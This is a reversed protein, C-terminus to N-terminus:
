KLALRFFDDLKNVYEVPYTRYAESHKVGPFEWTQSMPNTSVEWLAQIEASLVLVDNEEHLFLIPCSISPVLEVPNLPKFGYFLDATFVLGDYFIDLLWSPIGKEIAQRTVMGRLTAFCGDLMVAGVNEESAFLSVSAAGSCYGIVGINKATYGLTKVYDVAGGIDKDGNMLSRAKGSSEGRGRLDFLMVNYGRAVLDRTLGLTDVMPDVRNQYGGHVIILVNEGDSPLYWGKLIIKPDRSPFSVDRYELGVAAPTETVPVRPIDMALLTGLIILALYVGLTILIIRLTIRTWKHQKIYSM